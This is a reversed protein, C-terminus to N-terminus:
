TQGIDDSLDCIGVSLLVNRHVSNYAIQNIVSIVINSYFVYLTDDSLLHYKKGYEYGRYCCILLSLVSPLALQNVCLENQVSNFLLLLVEQM